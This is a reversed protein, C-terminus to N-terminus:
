YYSDSYLQVDNADVKKVYYTNTNLETMGVVSAITVKDGDRLNHGTMTVVVIQKHQEQLLILRQQQLQLILLPATMGGATVVTAAGVTRAGTALADGTEGQIGDGDVDYSLNTISSVVYNLTGATPIIM